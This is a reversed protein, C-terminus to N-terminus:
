RNIQKKYWDIAGWWIYWEQMDTAFPSDLYAKRTEDESPEPAVEKLKNREANAMAFQDGYFGAVDENMLIEQYHQYVKNFEEQTLIRGPSLQIIFQGAYLEAAQYEVYDMDIDAIKMTDRMDAWNNYHCNMAVEDKCEQFTKM